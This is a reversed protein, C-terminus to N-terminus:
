NVRRFQSQLGTIMNRYKADMKSASDVLVNSQNSSTSNRTSISIEGVKISSFNSIGNSISQNQYHMTCIKYALLRCISGSPIDRSSTYYNVKLIDNQQLPESLVVYYENPDVFVPRVTIKPTYVTLPTQQKFFEFDLVSIAGGCNIDYYYRAPLQYHLDDVKKLEVGYYFKCIDKQVDIKAQSINFDVQSSPITTESISLESRIIALVNQALSNVSYHTTEDSDNTCFSVKYLKSYDGDQDEYELQRADVSAVLTYNTSGANARYIKATPLGGTNSPFCIIASMTAEM